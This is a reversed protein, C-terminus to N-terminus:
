RSRPLKLSQLLQRRRWWNAAIVALVGAGVVVWFAVVMVDGIWDRTQYIVVFPTDPVRAFGALWRGRYLPHRKAVPDHYFADTPAEATDDAALLARIAPHSTPVVSEGEAFSPHLLIVLPPTDDLAPLGAPPRNTDGAAALVIKRDINRLRSNKDTTTTAVTAVVVGLLSGDLGRVARSVGFKHLGSNAGKYVRSFHAEMADPQQRVAGIFYDRFAANTLRNGAPWHALMTGDPGLVYWNETQLWLGAWHPVPSAVATLWRDLEPMRRGLLLNSLGPQGVALDVRRAIPDLDARMAVAALRAGHQVGALSDERFLGAAAAALGLVLFLAIVSAAVAPKRRCWRVFKGLTGIPQARVPERRLFRGLDGALQDATAYRRSPEKALCKLIVRELDRPLDPRLQRPAPPEEALIKRQIEAATEGSFPHHGTLLEYLTAGLGWVDSVPGVERHRGRAQEPSAYLLTGVFDGSHTLEHPADRTHALGFDTVRPQGLSDLLINAPKLDRHIL